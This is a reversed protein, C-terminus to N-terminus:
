MIRVSPRDTRARGLLDSHRSRLAALIMKLSNPIDRGPNSGTVEREASVRGVSNGPGTVPILTKIELLAMTPIRHMKPVWGIIQPESVTGHLHFSVPAYPWFSNGLYESVSFIKTIVRFISSHPEVIFYQTWVICVSHCVTYVRNLSSDTRFSLIMVTHTNRTERGLRTKAGVRFM